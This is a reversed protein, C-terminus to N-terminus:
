RDQTQRNELLSKINVDFAYWFGLTRRAVIELSEGRTFVVPLQLVPKGDQLFRTQQLLHVPLVGRGTDPKLYLVRGNPTLRLVSGTLVRLPPMPVVDYAIHFAVWQGRIRHDHIVAYDGPLLGEVEAEASKATITARPSIRVPFTLTGLQLTLGTPSAPPGDLSVIEGFPDTRAPYVGTTPQTGNQQAAAPLIGSLALGSAILLAAARRRWSQTVIPISPRM